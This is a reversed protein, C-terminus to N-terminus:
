NYEKTDYCFFIKQLIKNYSTASKIEPINEMAFESAITFIMIIITYLYIAVLVLFQLTVGNLWKKVGSDKIWM